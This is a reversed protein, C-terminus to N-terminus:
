SGVKLSATSTASKSTTTQVYISATWDGNSLESVPVNFDECTALGNRILVASTRSVRTSGSSLELSCTGSDTGQVLVSVQALSNVVRTNTITVSLSSSVPTPQDKIKDKQDNAGANDEPTSPDYNVKNIDTPDVQQAPQSTKDNQTFLSKIRHTNTYALFGIAVLAIILIVLHLRTSKNQKYKKM